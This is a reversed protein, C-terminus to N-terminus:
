GAVSHRARRRRGNPQHLSVLLVNGALAVDWPQNFRADTRVGDAYSAVNYAGALPTV